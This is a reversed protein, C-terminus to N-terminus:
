VPVGALQFLGALQISSMSAVIASSILRGQQGPVPVAVVRYYRAAVNAPRTDRWQTAQIPWGSPDPCSQWNGTGLVERSQVTYTYNTGLDTWSLVSGGAGSVISSVSLRPAAPLTPLSAVALWGLALWLFARSGLRIGSWLGGRRANSVMPTTMLSDHCVGRTSAFVNRLM